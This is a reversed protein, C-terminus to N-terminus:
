AKIPLPAHQRLEALRQRAQPADFLAARRLGAAALTTRLTADDLLRKLASELANPEDPHAYLAADSAVEPLGGMPSCILAAGSAM